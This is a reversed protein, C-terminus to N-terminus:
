RGRAPSSVGRKPPRRRAAALHWSSVTERGLERLVAELADLERRRFEQEGGQAFIQPVTMGERYELVDNLNVFRCGLLEAARSGVTSKGSGMFGILTVVAGM